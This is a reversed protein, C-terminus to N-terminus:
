ALESPWKLAQNEPNLYKGGSDHCVVKTCNHIIFMYIAMTGATLHILSDLCSLQLCKLLEPTHHVSTCSEHLCATCQLPLFIVAMWITRNRKGLYQGCFYFSDHM